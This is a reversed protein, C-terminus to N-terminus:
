TSQSSLAWFRPIIMWECDVIFSWRGCVCVVWCMLIDEMRVGVFSSVRDLSRAEFGFDIKVDACEHLPQNLLKPLSSFSASSSSFPLIFSYLILAIRKKESSSLFNLSDKLLFSEFKIFCFFYFFSFERNGALRIAAGLWYPQRNLCQASRM